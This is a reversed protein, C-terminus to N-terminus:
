SVTNLGASLLPLAMTALSRSHCGRWFWWAIGRRRLLGAVQVVAHTWAAKLAPHAYRGRFCDLFWHGPEGFEDITLASERRSQAHSPQSRTRLQHFVPLSNVRSGAPRARPRVVALLISGELGGQCGAEDRALLPPPPQCAIARACSRWSNQSVRRYITM